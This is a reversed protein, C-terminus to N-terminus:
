AAAALGRKVDYLDEDARALAADPSEADALSAFGISAEVDVGLEASLARLQARVAARWQAPDTRGLLVAFEDGGLRGVVANAASATRLADVVGILVADGVAHGHRDNVAKFRDVDLVAVTGSGLRRRWARALETRFARRNAAGTLADTSAQHRLEDLIEEVDAGRRQHQLDRSILEAFTRLLALDRAGYAEREPHVACLTGVAAGDAMRLPVGAFSGIRHPIQTVLPGYVPDAGVDNCLPDGLGIALHHCFSTSIPAELGAHLPVPGDGAAAVISLCSRQRDLRGVWVTSGELQRGLTTVVLQLVDAFDM